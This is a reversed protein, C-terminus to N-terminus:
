SSVAILGFDLCGFIHRNQNDALPLLIQIFIFPLCRLFWIKMPDIAALETTLTPIQGLNLFMWTNMCKSTVIYRPALTIVIEHM